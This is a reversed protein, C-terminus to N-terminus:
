GNSITVDHHPREIWWGADVLQQHCSYARGLKCPLHEVFVQLVPQTSFIIYLRYIHIYTYHISQGTKVATWSSGSQGGEAPRIAPPGGSAALATLNKAALILVPQTSSISAISANRPHYTEKWYEMSRILWKWTKRFVPLVIAYVMSWIVMKISQINVVM